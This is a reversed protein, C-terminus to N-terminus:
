SLLRGPKQLNTRRADALLWVSIRTRPWGAPEQGGLCYCSNASTAVEPRDGGRRDWTWRFEFGLGLIMLVLCHKPTNEVAAMLLNLFCRLGHSRHEHAFDSIDGCRSALRLYGLLPPSLRHLVNSKCSPRQEELDDESSGLRTSPSGFSKRM